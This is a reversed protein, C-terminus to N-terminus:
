ISKIKSDYIDELYCNTRLYLYHFIVFAVFNVSPVTMFDLVERCTKM